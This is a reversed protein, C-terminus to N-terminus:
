DTFSEQLSEFKTQYRREIPGSQPYHHLAILFAWILTELNQPLFLVSRHVNHPRKWFYRSDTIPNKGLYELFSEVSRAIDWTTEFTNNLLESYKKEVKRKKHIPLLGYLYKLDHNAKYKVKSEELAYLILLEIFYLGIVQRGVAFGLKRGDNEDYPFEAKFLTLLGEIWSIQPLKEKEKAM